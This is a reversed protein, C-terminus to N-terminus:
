VPTVRAHTDPGIDMRERSQSLPLLAQLLRDPKRNLCVPRFRFAPAVEGHSRTGSRVLDIQSVEGGTGGSTDYEKGFRGDGAFLLKGEAATLCGDRVGNAPVRDAAPCDVQDQMGM